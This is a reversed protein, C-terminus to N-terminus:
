VDRLHSCAVDGAEPKQVVAGGDERLARLVIEAGGAIDQEGDDDQEGTEGGGDAEDAGTGFIEVAKHWADRLPLKGQKEGEDGAKEGIFSEGADDGKGHGDEHQKIRQGDHQYQKGKQIAAEAAAAAHIQAGDGGGEGDAQEIRPFGSEAEAGGEAGSQVADQGEVCRAHAPDNRGGAAKNCTQDPM